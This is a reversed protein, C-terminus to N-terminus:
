GLNASIIVTVWGEWDVSAVSQHIGWGETFRKGVIVFDPWNHGAPIDGAHTKLSRGIAIAPQGKVGADKMGTYVQQESELTGGRVRIRSLSALLQSATFPVKTTCVARFGATRFSELADISDSSIMVRAEFGTAKRPAQQATNGDGDNGFTATDM